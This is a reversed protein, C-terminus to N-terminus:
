VYEVVCANRTKYANLLAVRLGPIYYGGRARTELYAIKGGALQDRLSHVVGRRRTDGGEVGIVGAREHQRLLQGVALVLQNLDGGAM